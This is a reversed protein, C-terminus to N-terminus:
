RGARHPGDSDLAEGVYADKRKSVDADEGSSGLGFLASVPGPEREARLDRAVLRRIYEALSIGLESARARARRHDEPSLSIQTRQTM